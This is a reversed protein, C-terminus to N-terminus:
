SLEVFNIIRERLDELNAKTECEWIVLIKWGSKTLAEQSSLDREVTTNIKDKWFEVNTAPWKFFHCDHKHWFCGHIFIVKKRGPFVVDPKAPLKKYHLRYRYGNSWLWKRVLIEPKTDRGKIRSMNYSRQKPSHVDM